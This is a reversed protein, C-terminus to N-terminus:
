LFKTQYDKADQEADASNADMEDIAKYAAKSFEDEIFQFQFKKFYFLNENVRVEYINENDETRFIDTVNGKLTQGFLIFEVILNREKVNQQRQFNTM